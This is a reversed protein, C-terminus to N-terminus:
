QTGGQNGGQPPPQAMGGTGTQPVVRTWGGPCSQVYPYYAKADQCYYWYSQQPEAPVPVVSEYSPYPYYYPYPYGYYPYGYPHGWWPGWAYWGWHPGHHWGHPYAGAGSVLALSFCVGLVIVFAIKKM